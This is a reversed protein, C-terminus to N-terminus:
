SSRQADFAVYLIVRVLVAVGENIVNGGAKAPLGPTDMRKRGRFPELVYKKKM